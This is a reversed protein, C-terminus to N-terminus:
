FICLLSSKVFIQKLIRKNSVSYNQKLFTQRSNMYLFNYATFIRFFISHFFSKIHVVAKFKTLKISLLKINQKQAAKHFYIKVKDYKLKKKIQKLFTM